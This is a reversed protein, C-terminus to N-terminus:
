ASKRTFALYGRSTWLKGWTSLLTLILVLVLSPGASTKFPPHPTQLSPLMARMSCKEFSCDHRKRNQVFIPFVLILCNGLLAFMCYYELRNQFHVSSYHLSSYEFLTSALVWEQKAERKGPFRNSRSSDVQVTASCHTLFAFNRLIAFLGSCSVLNFTKTLDLLSVHLPRHQEIYKEQFQRLSIV